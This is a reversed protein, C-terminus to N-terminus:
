RRRSRMTRSALRARGVRTRQTVAGALAARTHPPTVTDPTLQAVAAGTRERRLNAAVQRWVGRPVGLRPDFGGSRRSIGFGGGFAASWAFVV